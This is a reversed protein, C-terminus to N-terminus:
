QVSAIGSDASLLIQRSNSGVIVTVTGSNAPIGYGNFSISAVGGFSASSITAFYPSKTLDTIYAGSGHNLDTESSISYTGGSVNFTVTRSTSASMARTRAYNLDAAVQHAAAEVRYNSIATTYRPIALAALTASIVAVIMVEILTYGRRDAPRV